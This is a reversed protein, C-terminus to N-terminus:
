EAPDAVDRHDDVEVALAEIADNGADPDVLEGPHERRGAPLHELRLVAAAKLPEDGARPALHELAPDVLHAVVVLDEDPSASRRSRRMPPALAGSRSRRGIMPRTGSSTNGAM